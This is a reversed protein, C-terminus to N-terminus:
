HVPMRVIAAIIAVAAALMAGLRLTLDHKMESLRLDLYDRTVVADGITDALVRATAEADELSFHAEERLRRALTLTDFTVTSM